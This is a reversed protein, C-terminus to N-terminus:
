KRRGKELREYLHIAQRPDAAVARWDDRLADSDQEKGTRRNTLIKSFDMLHGMGTLFSSFVRGSVQNTHNDM